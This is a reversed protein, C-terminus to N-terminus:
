EKEGGGASTPFLRALTSLVNDTHNPFRALLEPAATTMIYPHGALELMPVDNFNDGFAYAKEPPLRLHDCLWQLGMGKGATTFDLWHDGTIAASIKGKWRPLLEAAPFRIDGLSCATIQTIEGSIDAFSHAMVTNPDDLNRLKRATAEDPVIYYHAVGTNVRAFCDTRCTISEVVARGLARPICIQNLLASGDHIEASNESLFFIDEKVPAFLERLSGYSRGSAVCFGIGREKLWRIRQFIAPSLTKEGNPLLTGDLHSIILAEM